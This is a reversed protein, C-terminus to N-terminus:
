KVHSNVWRTFLIWNRRISNSIILWIYFNWDIEASWSTYDILNFFICFTIKYKKKRTIYISFLNRLEMMTHRSSSIRTFNMKLRNQKMNSKFRKQTKMILVKTREIIKYETEMHKEDVKTWSTETLAVSWYRSRSIAKLSSKVKKKQLTCNAIDSEWKQKNAIKWHTVM